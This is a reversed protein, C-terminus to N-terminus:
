LNIGAALVHAAVIMARRKEAAGKEIGKLAHPRSHPFLVRDALYGLYVGIALRATIYALAFKKEGAFEPAFAYMAAFACLGLFLLSIGRARDRVAPEASRYHALLRDAIVRRGWADPWLDPWILMALLAILALLGVAVLIISLLSADM